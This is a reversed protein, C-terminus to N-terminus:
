GALASNKARAVVRLAESSASGLILTDVQRKLAAAKWAQLRAGIREASGVLAIGDVL